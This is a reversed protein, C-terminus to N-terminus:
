RVTPVGARAMGDITATTTRPIAKPASRSSLVRGGAPSEGALEGGPTSPRGCWYVQQM